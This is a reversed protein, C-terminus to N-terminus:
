ANSFGKLFFSPYEGECPVGTQCLACGLSYGKSRKGSKILPHPYMKMNNTYNDMFRKEISKKRLYCIEKNIGNSSIANVPCKSICKNCSAGKNKLCEAMYGDTGTKTPELHLNTIISGFRVNAGASTILSGNLGFHGLGAAFAVHRESWTSAFTYQESRFADYGGDLGPVFATKGHNELIKVLELAVEYILTGGNNRALSYLRSPWKGNRNSERVEKSFPLAWSIVSLHTLDTGGPSKRKMFDRPIFHRPSVATLFEKFIPDDGDAVGVIPKQFVCLGEFDDLRSLKNEQFLNSIKQEIWENTFLSYNLIDGLM